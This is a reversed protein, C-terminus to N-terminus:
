GMFIKTTTLYGLYILLLSFLTSIRRFSRSLATALTAALIAYLLILDLSTFRIGEVFAHPLTEMWRIGGNMFRILHSVVMGIFSSVSEISHFVIILGCGYILLTALPIVILGSLWFCNSFQHFHYLMIPMTGLQAAISVSTLSWIKDPLFGHCRITDYIHKQLLLISIVAAYSLQFGVDILYRPNYILMLFASAFVTNLTTNKRELMEGIAVLTLMTSARVVSASLGAIFAYGWLATLSLIIRTRKLKAGGPILRLLTTIVLYIIGVHLGSVALVHSAGTASYSTKLEKSLLTKDGITLASAIALEEGELNNSEYIKEIRRRVERAKRLPTDCTDHGIRKWKNKPVYISGSFGINRLYTEYGNTEKQKGVTWSPFLLIDGERLTSSASDKAVLLMAQTGLPLHEGFLLVPVSYTARKEQPIDTTKALLYPSGQTDRDWIVPETQRTRTAGLLFLFTLLIVGSVWRLRYQNFAPCLQTAILALVPPLLTWEPIALQPMYLGFLIGAILFLCIRLFPLCYLKEM